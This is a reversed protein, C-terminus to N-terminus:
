NDFVESCFTLIGEGLLPTFEKSLENLSGQKRERTWQGKHNRDRSEPVAMIRWPQMQLLCQPLSGEVSDTTQSVKKSSTHTKLGM